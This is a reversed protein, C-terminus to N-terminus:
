RSKKRTYSVVLGAFSLGFLALTTSPEPTTFVEDASGQVGVTFGNWNENTLSRWTVTTFAGKFQITGHPEGTGLLQYEVGGGPLSVVNKFSTGCGWYGCDNGDSSDGFSLIDFDQDFAYGNGNLSVYSFVPNAISQSFTLTQTGAFQLAIIDTGTPINDVLASTYPSTAPIRGVGATAIGSTNNQWYDIEGGAGTQFFSIGQPNSYSLNITTTNTTITGQGQFGNVSSGSTWDTWFIPTAQASDSLVSGIALLGIATTQLLIKIKIDKM